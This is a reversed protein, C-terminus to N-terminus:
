SFHALRVRNLLLRHAHQIRHPHSLVGLMDALEKTVLYPESAQDTSNM